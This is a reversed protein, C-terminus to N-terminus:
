RSNSLSRPCSIGAVARPASKAPLPGKGPLHDVPLTLTRCALDSALPELDAFNRLSMYSGTVKSDGLDLSQMGFRSPSRPTHSTSFLVGAVCQYGLSCFSSSPLLWDGRRYLHLLLLAPTHSAFLELRIDYLGLCFLSQM